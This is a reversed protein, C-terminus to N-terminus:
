RCGRGYGNHSGGSSWHDLHGHNYSSIEWVEIRPPPLPRYYRGGYYASSGAPYNQWVRPGEFYGYGICGQTALSLLLVVLINFIKM